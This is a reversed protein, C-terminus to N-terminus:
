GAARQGRWMIFLGTAVILLCGVITPGDLQEGFVTIGLVVAFLLRTYRFPTVVSVDGSRMANMLASYAFVGVCIV